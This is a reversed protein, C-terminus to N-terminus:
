RLWHLDEQHIPCIHTFRHFQDRRIEWGAAKLDEIADSFEEHQTDLVEACRTADCEFYIKGRERSITM